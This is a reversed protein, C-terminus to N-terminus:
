NILDDKYDECIMMHDCWPCLRNPTREFNCGLIQDKLDYFKQEIQQKKKAKAPKIFSNEPQKTWFMGYESVQIGLMKEVLIVYLYMEFNYESTLYKKFKGTKYDIVCYGNPRLYIADIVGVLDWEPDYLKLESHEPRDLDFEKIIEHFNLVDSKYNDEALLYKQYEELMDNNKNYAEFYEHLLTGRDAEPSSKREQNISRASIHSLYYSLPCNKYQNLKSKSLRLAHDEMNDGIDM